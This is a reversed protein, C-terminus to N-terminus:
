QRRLVHFYQASTSPNVVHWNVNGKEGEGEDAPMYFRDSSLQLFREPRCSTHEPGAGDFGHPLVLTMGSSRLWKEEGGSLFTDVTVQAGNYFDGLQGEWVVLRNPTEVSMGYEFSMVALEGLPSDVLELVGQSSPSSSLANLPTYKVNTRQDCLKAHRPICVGRASDQGCIRVDFGELLLAGVAMAEATAYSVGEKTELSKLTPDVHLRVIDPHLIFGDPVTVSKRAIDLLHDEPLGTDLTSVTSSPITMGSWKKQLWYEPITYEKAAAWWQALDTRYGQRVDDVFEADVVGAEECVRGYIEVVPRHTRIDRYMVPQSWTPNEIPHENHGHRRYGVIDMVIDRHFTKRYAFSLSAAFSASPISDANIHMAPANICKAADSVYTTSRSNSPDTSVNIQNNVILHLTGRPLNSLGFTETVVGQGAFAGDGHLNVVMVTDEVSDYGEKEVVGEKEYDQQKARAKGAAVPNVAELHCPNPPVSVNMSNEAGGFNRAVSVHANYLLDGMAHDPASPPFESLGQYKRFLWPAPIDLIGLMIQMRTRHTLCLIVDKVKHENAEALAQYLAVLTAETGEISFQKLYPYTEM